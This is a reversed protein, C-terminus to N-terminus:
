QLPIAWVVDHSKAHVYLSFPRTVYQVRLRPYNLGTRNTAPFPEAATGALAQQEGSCVQNTIFDKRSRYAKKAIYMRCFAQLKVILPENDRWLQARDYAASVM